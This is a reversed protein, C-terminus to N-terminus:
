NHLGWRHGWGAILRGNLSCWNHLTLSRLCEPLWRLMNLLDHLSWRLLDMMCRGLHNHLGWLLLLLWHVLGLWDLVNRLALLLWHIILLLGLVDLLLWYLEYVRLCHLVFFSLWLLVICGLWVYWDNELRSWRLLVVLSRDLLVGRLGYLGYLVDFRPWRGRSVLWCVLLKLFSIIIIDLWGFGIDAISGVEVLSGHSSLLVVFLWCWHDCAVSQGLLVDVLGLGDLRAELLLLLLLHLM